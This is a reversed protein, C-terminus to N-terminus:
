RSMRSSSISVAADRGFRWVSFSIPLGVTIMHVGIGLLLDHLKYPDRAQLASLPLVVLTMVQDVAAGYFLGCIFWHETLFKLWHSAVYYVTAASTAIFFHLFIGLAYVAVGGGHAAPRGILGAAIVRIMMENEKPAPKPTDEYRLVEPGGFEHVVIAKM